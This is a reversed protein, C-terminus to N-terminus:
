FPATTPITKYTIRYKIAYNGTTIEGTLLQAVIVANAVPAVDGVAASTGLGQIFRVQATTQDLWGTTEVRPSAEAGSSNTYKLALDEGAAIGGYATGGATWFTADLVVNAFGAGPAALVTIPTANLALVQASTLTGEAVAYDQAEGGGTQPGTGADPALQLSSDKHQTAM